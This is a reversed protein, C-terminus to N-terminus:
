NAPVIHIPLPKVPNKVVISSHAGYNSLDYAIEMGSNGCGVVLVTQDKFERGSRYGVSHLIKGKFAGLGPIEPIVGEGNEGSAVVLFRALYVEREGTLTNKAEVRWKGSERDYSALQVSRSYRPNINFESVYSDIYDIFTDKPMFTPCSPSHRMYPLYCFEKGLHLHLRDYTRKKWLSACCDEMELITNSISHHSLCNSVALGSPGAGIILM